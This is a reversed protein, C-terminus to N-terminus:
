FHYGGRIGWITKNGSLVLNDFEMTGIDAAVTYRDPLWRDFVVGAGWSDIGGDVRSSGGLRAAFTGLLLVEAGRRICGGRVQENFEKEEAYALLLRVLDDAGETRRFGAEATVGARRPRTLGTERGDFSLIEDTVNEWAVAATLGVRVGAFAHRWGLSTGLDLGDADYSTSDWKSDYHRWAAGVAWRVPLDRGFTRLPEWALGALSMRDRMDLTEGTGEPDYATRVPVDDAGFDQDAVTLSVGRWHVAGAYTGFDLGGFYDAHDYGVVVGDAAALPAPNLLLTAPAPDALDASGLASMRGSVFIGETLFGTSGVRAFGAAVAPGAAALALCFAPSILRRQM